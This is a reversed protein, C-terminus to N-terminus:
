PRLSSAAFAQKVPLRFLYWIIGAHIAVWVFQWPWPIRPVQTHRLANLLGLPTFVICFTSLAITLLRAWNKLKLLGFAAVISPAGVVLFLAAFAIFGALIGTGTDSLPGSTRFYSVAAWGSLVLALSLCLIGWVM